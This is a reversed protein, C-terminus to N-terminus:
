TDKYNQMVSEMVHKEFSTLVHLDYGTSLQFPIMLRNIAQLPMEWEFPHHPSWTMFSNENYWKFYWSKFYKDFLRLLEVFLKVLLLWYMNSPGNIWSPRNCGVGNNGNVVSFVLFRANQFTGRLGKETVIRRM